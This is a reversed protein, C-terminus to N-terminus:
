PLHGDAQLFETAFSVKGRIQELAGPQLEAVQFEPGDGYASTLGHESARVFGFRGYYAPAGLVV